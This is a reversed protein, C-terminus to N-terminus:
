RGDGDLQFAAWYFPHATARRRLAALQARRLAEAPGLGDRIGRYLREVLRPASSDHVAWQTALVARAGAFQFARALGLVGEGQVEEGLATDCASLVVLDADLRMQELVEWAQLRGDEAADGGSAALALSSDLPSRADLLGHCGLHLHTVDSGVGKVRRETADAGTFVTATPGLLDRVLAAERRAGPLPGLKRDRPGVSRAPGIAPDAIVVATRTREPRRRSALEAYATASPAVHVPAREVLLPGRRRVPLAAFPVLQLPGDPLVLLRQAREVRDAVPAVLLASLTEAPTRWTQFISPRSVAARLAGAADALQKRGAAIRHVTLEGAAPGVAFVFSHADGVAFSLLLTGPELARRAAAVDLADGQRLSALRPSVARIADGVEALENRSSAIGALLAERKGAEVDPLEGLLRRYLAEAARRRRDLGPPLHPLPTDRTGLAALLERARWTELAQFADAPRGLEVLLDIAEFHIEGFEARFRARSETGGGLVGLQSDLAGLAATLMACAEAARGQRRLARGLQYRTRAEDDTGPFRASEIALAERLRAEAEVPEGRALALEGLRRLALSTPRADPALRRAQGLGAELLERADEFAGSQLALEGLDSLVSARLIGDPNAEEVIARAQELLRRRAAPDSAVQAQGLLLTAVALTRGTGAKAHLALAREFLAEAARREGRLREFVAQNTLVRAEDHATGHAGALRAARVFVPAADELRGRLLLTIGLNDLTRAMDMTDPATGELLEVTRRLAEESDALLGQRRRVIGLNRLGASYTRSGPGLRGWTELAVGLHRASQEYDGKEGYVIAANNHASALEMSGPAERARLDLARAYLREADGLRSQAMAVSALRSACFAVMLGGPRLREWRELGQSYAADARVHDGAADAARGRLVALQAARVPDLGRDAEAQADELAKVAAAREPSDGRRGAMRLDLWAADDPRTRRWRAALASSAALGAAVDAADRSALQARASTFAELDAEDLRPRVDLLWVGSSIPREIRTGDRIVELTTAGRPAEEFEVQAVDGPWTFVGHAPDPNAPPAAERRWGVLRDDPRLGAADASGGPEVTLVVVGPESPEAPEAAAAALLCSLVVWPRLLSNRM